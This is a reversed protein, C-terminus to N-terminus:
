LIGNYYVNNYDNNYNRSSNYKKINAIRHYADTRLKSYGSSLDSYVFAQYHKLAENQNGDFDFIEGLYWHCIVLNSNLQLANYLDSTAQADNHLLAYAIGRDAYASAYNHSISLAINLQDIAEQLQGRLLLRNGENYYKSAELLMRNDNIETIITQKDESNALIKKLYVMKNSAKVEESASHAAKLINDIDTQDIDARIRVYFTMSSANATQTEELITTKIVGAAVSNIEDQSLTYNNTRSCSVIYTGAQEIANRKANQLAMFKGDEITESEGITYTGDAVIIQNAYSINCISILLFVLIYLKTKM